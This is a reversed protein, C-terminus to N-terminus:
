LAQFAGSTCTLSKYKIIFFNFDLFSPFNSAWLWIIEVSMKCLIISSNWYDCSFHKGESTMLSICMLIVSDSCLCWIVEVSIVTLVLYTWIYLLQNSFPLPLNESQLFHEKNQYPSSNCEHICKDFRKSHYM